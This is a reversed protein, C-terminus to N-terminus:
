FPIGDYDDDITVAPIFPAYDPHNVLEENLRSLCTRVHNVEEQAGAWADGFMAVEAQYQGEIEGLYGSCDEIEEYITEISRM